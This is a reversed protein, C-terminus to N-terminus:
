EGGWRGLIDTKRLGRQLIRAISTLVLDGRQHGYQDNILKFRDVDVIAVSLAQDYRGVREMEQILVEDLKRRNFLGTLRDTVSIQELEISRISLLAHAEALENQAEKLKSIDVAISIKAPRGDFWTLASEHLQYWRDDVDNFHEFILEDAPPPADPMLEAIRCFICPRDQTYIARYCPSGSDVSTRERAADNAAVVEYTAVDVVYIPFPILDFLAQWNESNASGSLMTRM